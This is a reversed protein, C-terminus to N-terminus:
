NSKIGIEENIEYILKVTLGSADSNAVVEKKKNEDKYNSLQYENELETELELAIKEKLEEEKYEKEELIIEENTIKQIEIPFYFNSFLKIKKSAMITDYNEFKSVGKGLNIKFNNICIKNKYEINGTKVKEKQLFNEKKEKEYIIKGYITAEAHVYRNGTHEGEM